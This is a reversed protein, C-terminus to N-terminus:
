GREYWECYIDRNTRYLHYHETNPYNIGDAYGNWQNHDFNHKFNCQDSECLCAHFDDCLLGFCERDFSSYYLKFRYRYSEWEFVMSIDSKRWEYWKSNIDCDTRFLDIYQTVTFHYCDTYSNWQYHYFDHNFDNYESQRLGSYIDNYM